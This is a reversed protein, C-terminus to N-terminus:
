KDDFFMRVATDIETGIVSSVLGWDKDITSKGYLETVSSDAAKWTGNPQKVLYTHDTEFNDSRKVIDSNQVMVEDIANSTQNFPDQINQKRQFM